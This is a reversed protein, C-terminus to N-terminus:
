KRFAMALLTPVYLSKANRAFLSNTCLPVNKGFITANRINLLLSEFYKLDHERLSIPIKSCKTMFFDSSIPFDFFHQWFCWRVMKKFFIKLKYIWTTKFSKQHQSYLFQRNWLYYAQCFTYPNLPFLGKRRIIHYEMVRAKHEKQIGLKSKLLQTTSWSTLPKSFSIALLFRYFCRSHFQM